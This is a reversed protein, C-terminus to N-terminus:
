GVPVKALLSVPSLVPALAAGLIPRLPALLAWPRWKGRSADRWLEQNAEWLAGTLAQDLESLSGGLAVLLVGDCALTWPSALLLLPLELAAGLGAHLAAAARGVDRADVRELRQSRSPAGFSSPASRCGPAHVLLLAALLPLPSPKM